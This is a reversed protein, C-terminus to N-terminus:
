EVAATDIYGLDAGQKEVGVVVFSVPTFVHEKEGFDGYIVMYFGVGQLLM